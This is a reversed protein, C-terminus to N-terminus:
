RTFSINWRRHTYNWGLSRMTNNSKRPCWLKFCYRCLDSVWSSVWLDIAFKEASDLTM